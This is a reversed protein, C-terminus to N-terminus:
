KISLSGDERLKCANWPSQLTKWTMWVHSSQKAYSCMKLKAQASHPKSSKSPLSTRFKFPPWPFLTAFTDQRVPGSRAARDSRSKHIKGQRTFPM